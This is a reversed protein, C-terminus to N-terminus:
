SFIKLGIIGALIMFLFLFKLFSKSERFFIMGILMSGIAGIGTWVAYGTGIPLELLAQSLLYFSGIMCLVMLLTYKIIKLGKSLKMMLVFGVEFLGALILMIWSATM